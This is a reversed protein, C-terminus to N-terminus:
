DQTEEKKIQIGFAGFLFPTDENGQADEDSNVESTFSESGERVVKGKAELKNSSSMNADDSKM